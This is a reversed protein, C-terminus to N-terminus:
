LTVAVIGAAERITMRFFRGLTLWQGFGDPLVVTRQELDVLGGGLLKEVSNIPRSAEVYMAGFGILLITGKPVGISVEVRPHPGIEWSTAIVRRVAPWDSPNIIIQECEAAVAEAAQAEAADIVAALDDGAPLPAGAATVLQQCLHREAARDVMQCLVQDIFAAGNDDVWDLIQKSCPVSVAALHARGGVDAVAFEAGLSYDPADVKGEVTTVLSPAVRSLTSSLDAEKAELIIPTATYSPELAPIPENSGSIHTIAGRMTALARLGEHADLVRQAKDPVPQGQRQSRNVRAAAVAVGRFLRPVLDVLAATDEASDLAVRARNARSLDDIGPEVAHAVLTDLTNTHPATM